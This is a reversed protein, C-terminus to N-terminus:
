KIINKIIELMDYENTCKLIESLVHMANTKIKESPLYSGAEDHVESGTVPPNFISILVVDEIAQFTHDDNKDLAYIVDPLIKYKKGTCLEVLEGIGKICYCAELHNKYHWHLVDGKPIITKHVSFGMNDSELLPRISNFGSGHVNRETLILENTNIVKM